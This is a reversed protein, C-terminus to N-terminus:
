KSTNNKLFSIFLVFHSM